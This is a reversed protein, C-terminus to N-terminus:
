YTDRGCVNLINLQLMFKNTSETQIYLNMQNECGNRVVADHRIQLRGNATRRKHSKQFGIIHGQFPFPSFLFQSIITTSPTTSRGKPHFFSQWNSSKLKM